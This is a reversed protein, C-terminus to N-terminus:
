NHDGPVAGEELPEEDMIRTASSRGLERYAETMEDHLTHWDDTHDGDRGPPSHPDTAPVEVGLDGLTEEVRAHWDERMEALTATRLGLDDVLADVAELEPSDAPSGDGELPVYAGTPSFLTLAHPFLRDVAAQVREIGDESAALRELWNGAHDLHYDEEALVKGVRNRLAPLSSDALAHLRVDEAEDYLYSRVIADAWDGEAFPLEALTTHRFTRPDREWILDTEDYGMAELLGYWLRAHGLEDQAINALAIDSELTPARVQWYTYREAVVLEDDALRLLLAEVAARERDSLEALPGIDPTDTASEEAAGDTGAM